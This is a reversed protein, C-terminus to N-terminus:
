GGRDTFSVAQHSFRSRGPDAGWRIQSLRSRRLDFAM